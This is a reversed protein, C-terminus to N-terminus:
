RNNKVEEKSETEKTEESQPKTEEIFNLAYRMTAENDDALPRVKAFKVFDAVELIQKMHQEVIKADKDAKLANLIQTSTMEMANITFRNDIYERLIDTLRTYYLKEQGAQWLREEKLRLLAQMARDYPPILSEPSIGVSNKRKRYRFYLYIGGGILLLSLLIIWVYGPVFDWLVFRPSQVGKIDKIEMKTTDVDIPVVKLSLTETTAFTDKGLTCKIPPIFYFGSDFSTIIIERNIQIRENKIDTTDGPTVSIIEVGKTLTDGHLALQVEAGKEQVIELKVATQEGMWIAASDMKASILINHRKAAESPHLSLLLLILLIYTSRM